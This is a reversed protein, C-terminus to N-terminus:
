EWNQTHINDIKQSLILYHEDDVYKLLFDKEVKHFLPLLHVM